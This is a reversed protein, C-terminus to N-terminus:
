IFLFLCNIGPKAEGEVDIHIGGAVVFLSGILLIFSAYEHGVQLMRGANGLVFVYYITTVAGLGMAIKPYHREWWRLHIFPMLAIALLMLAFPLILAPHPSGTAAALVSTSQFM